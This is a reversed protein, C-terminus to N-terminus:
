VAVMRTQPSKRKGKAASEAKPPPPTPSMPKQSNNAAEKGERKQERLCPRAQAITMGFEELLECVGQPGTV